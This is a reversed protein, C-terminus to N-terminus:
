SGSARIQAWIEEIVDGALAVDDADTSVTGAVFRIVTRGRYTTQTLYIRGDDNIRKLLDLTRENTDAAFSFLSLSPETTLYLGDVSRLRESLDVAWRVHNELMAALDRSGYHRLVFWLKLSRFARGLQPTWESFNVLPEDRHTELYSPMASMTKTLLGPDKLLFVSCEMGTMLWKHPNLVLSDAREWGDFPERLSAAIAAVGAWAADIHYFLGHSQAVDALANLNDFAGVSTGGAAGVVMMPLFGMERDAAIQSELRGADMQDQENTPVEVVNEAGIGALWAAKKISSHAEPSVYIRLPPFAHLGVNRAGFQTIKERAMLIASLTSTSATDNIVGYFGHGNLGLLATMWEIMRGELETSFPSTQWLMGQQSLAAALQDAALAVPSTSCPFYAFFRPHNWHTVGISALADFDALINAFPEGGSPPSAPLQDRIDGPAASSRVPKSPMTRFYESIWNQVSLSTEEFTEIDFAMVAGVMRLIVPLGM